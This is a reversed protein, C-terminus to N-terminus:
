TQYVYVTIYTILLSLTKCCNKLLLSKYLLLKGLCAKGDSYCGHEQSEGSLWVM